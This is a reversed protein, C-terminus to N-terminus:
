IFFLKSISSFYRTQTNKNVYSQEEGDRVGSKFTIYIQATQRIKSATITLKLFILMQLIDELTTM